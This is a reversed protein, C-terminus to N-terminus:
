FWYEHMKELFTENLSYGAADGIVSDIGCHPCLATKGNVDDIWEEVEDPSFFELCYFCGCIESVEISEQNNISHKHAIIHPGQELKFCREKKM